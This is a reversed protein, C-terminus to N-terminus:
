LLDGDSRPKEFGPVRTRTGLIEEQEAHRGFGGLAGGAIGLLGCAGLLAVAGSALPHGSGLAAIGGLMLVLSALGVLLGRTM